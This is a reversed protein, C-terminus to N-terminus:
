VRIFIKRQYLFRCLLFVLGLGGLTVLFRGCGPQIVRDFFASVDGGLAYSAITNFPLVKHLIYITIANTGIWVFPMCWKQRQKVDILWYFAGFLLCAIGTTLFVFSSTWIKKIIPFQYSWLLAGVILAAGAGFLIKTKREQTLNANKMMLGILVGLLCQGIAPVNSLLGEPDHDGEWKRLPLYEKDIYDSWNKRVEFGPQGTSPVPVFSLLAWYGFLLSCCLTVIGRTRLWCLALGAGVSCIALRQLVGVLRIKEYGASIGNYYLLGILYLILGRKLVKWSTAAPGELKLSKQISFVQSIGIIVVFMAFIQDYLHFGAWEVHDLHFDTKLMKELAGFVEEMGVIFFMDFGRLADLSLLRTSAPTGPNATIAAPTSVDAPPTM